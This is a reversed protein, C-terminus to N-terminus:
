RWCTSGDSPRRWQRRETRRNRAKTGWWGRGRRVGCSAVWTFSNSVLVDILSQKISQNVTKNKMMQKRAHRHIYTHKEHQFGLVFLSKRSPSHRDHKRKVWYNRIISHILTFRWHSVDNHTQLKKKKWSTDREFTSWSYKEIKMIRIWFM